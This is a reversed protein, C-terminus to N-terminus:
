TSKLIPINQLFLSVLVIYHEVEGGLVFILFCSWICSSQKILIEGNSCYSLFFFVNPAFIQSEREKSDLSWINLHLNGLLLQQKDQGCCLIHTHTGYMYSIYLVYIYACIYMCLIYVTSSVTSISLCMKLLIVTSVTTHESFHYLLCWKRFSCLRLRQMLCIEHSMPLLIMDLCMNREHRM